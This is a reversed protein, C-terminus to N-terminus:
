LLLLLLKLNVAAAAELHCWPLHLKGNIYFPSIWNSCYGIEM